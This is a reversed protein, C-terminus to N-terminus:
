KQIYMRKLTGMKDMKTTKAAPQHLRTWQRLSGIVGRGVKLNQWQEISKSSLVM